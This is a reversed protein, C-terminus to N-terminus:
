RRVLARPAWIPLTIKEGSNQFLASGVHASDDVRPQEQWASTGVNQVIISPTM